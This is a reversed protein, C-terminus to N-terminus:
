KNFMGNIWDWEQGFMNLTPLIIIVVFILYCFILIILVRRVLNFGKFWIVLNNFWDVM